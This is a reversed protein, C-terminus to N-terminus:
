GTIMSYKLGAQTERLDTYAGASEDYIYCDGPLITRFNMGCIEEYTWRQVEYDVTKRNLAADMLVDIEERSKLGLAYLVLDDLENNEDVFLVIEDYRTPWSGYIRENQKEVLPSILKGNDGPLLEQWLSMGSQMMSTFSGFPSQEQMKQMNSMDMGYFQSMLDMMLAQTDSRIINGDVNKTYILLNLDYSYQVASIANHLASNIDARQQEIFAKFSTLDNEQEEISNFANMMEYLMAKQYVADNEHESTSQAKNLFTSLLSTIDVSQQEIRLPYSSLTEEQITDIYMTTGQSVAYILAVGIIGISGAFSTLATRSKKTFLNKLSLGFSTWISMSPKKKGREKLKEDENEDGSKVKLVEEDALPNSDGTIIGDLMNVIRTAYREALSSNHTVMIVLRDVAIEKLIDIVQVSTETDLAGTPEDALIIDPDNVIARAIAVRQM